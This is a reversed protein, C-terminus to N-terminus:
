FFFFLKDECHLWVTFNNIKRDWNFVDSLRVSRHANLVSEMMMPAISPRARYLFESVDSARPEFLVSTSSYTESVYVLLPIRIIFKVNLLIKRKLMTDLMLYSYEFRKM